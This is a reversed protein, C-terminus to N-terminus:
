AEIGIDCQVSRQMLDFTHEAKEQKQASLQIQNDINKRKDAHGVRQFQHSLDKSLHLVTRGQISGSQRKTAIRHSSLSVSFKETYEQIITHLM